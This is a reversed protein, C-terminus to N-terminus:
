TTRGNTQRDASENGTFIESVMFGFQEFTVHRHVPIHM